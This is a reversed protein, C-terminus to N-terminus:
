LLDVHPYIYILCFVMNIVVFSVTWFIVVSPWFKSHVLVYKLNLDFILYKPDATLPFSLHLHYLLYPLCVIYNELFLKKTHFTTLLFLSLFWFFTTIGIRTYPLSDPIRVLHFLLGTIVALIFNRPVISPFISNLIFNEFLCNASLVQTLLFVLSLIPTTSSYSYSAHPSVWLIIVSSFGSFLFHLLHSLVSINIPSFDPLHWLILFLPCLFDDWNLLRWM